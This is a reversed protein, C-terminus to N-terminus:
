KKALIINYYELHKRKYHNKLDSSQVYSNSCFSCNFPKKGTHTCIHKQMYDKRKTIKPCVPCGFEGSGLKIPLTQLIIFSLAITKKGFYEKIKM